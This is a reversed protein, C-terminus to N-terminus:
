RGRSAAPHRVQSAGVANRNNGRVKSVEPLHCLALFQREVKVRGSIGLAQCIAQLFKELVRLLLLGHCDLIERSCEAHRHGVHHLFVQSM